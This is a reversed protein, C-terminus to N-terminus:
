MKNSHKKITATTEEPNRTREGKQNNGGLLTKEADNLIAYIFDAM